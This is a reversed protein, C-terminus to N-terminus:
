FQAFVITDATKGVVVTQDQLWEEAEDLDEFEQNYSTNIDALDGEEYECCIAIVDLEIDGEEFYHFLLDLGESSFNDDRNCDKFARKFDYSDVTIFM